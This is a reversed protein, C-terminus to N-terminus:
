AHRHRDHLPFAHTDFVNATQCSIMSLANHEKDYPFDVTDEPLNDQRKQGNKRSKCLIYSLIALFLLSSSTLALILILMWQKPEGDEREDYLNGNSPASETLTFHITATSTLSPHGNDNVTVLVKWLDYEDYAVKRSIYIEGTNPDIAFGFDDGDYVKYTLEANLGADSDKAAIRTVIYGPPADRPLQIEASGNILPPQTILPANDNQDVVNIILVAHQSTTAM